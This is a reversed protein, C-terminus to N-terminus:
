SKLTDGFRFKNYFYEIASGQPFKNRDIGARKVMHHYISICKSQSVKELAIKKTSPKWLLDWETYKIPYFTNTDQVHDILNFINFAEHVLKPGIEAWVIKTKDFSSSKDILYKLIESDPKLYLVAGVVQKVGNDDEFGAIINDFDWKDSLCINDLDTWALDTNQIMQYRFLDSFGAYSGDVVFIDKEKIISRADVKKVGDPFILNDDYVFITLDHGYYLFSRISVEQIKTISNGVWLAGFKM